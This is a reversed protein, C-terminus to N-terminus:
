TCMGEGNLKDILANMKLSEAQRRAVAEASIDEGWDEEAPPTIGGDTVHPKVAATKDDSPNGAGESDSGSPSSDRPASSGAESKDKAAKKDEKTPSKAKLDKAIFSALKHKNDVPHRQGCAKCTRYVSGKSLSLVTEPNKCGPCLVFKEIFTQLVESLREAGHAGNVIHRANVKEIKTQAGLEFGFFKTSDPHSDALALM